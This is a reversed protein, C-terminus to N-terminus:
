SSSPTASSCLIWLNTDGAMFKIAHDTVLTDDATTTILATDSNNGITVEPGFWLLNNNYGLTGYDRIYIFAPHSPKSGTAISNLAMVCFDSSNAASTNLEFEAAVPGFGLWGANMLM